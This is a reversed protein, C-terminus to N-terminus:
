VGYQWWISAQWVFILTFSAFRHQLQGGTNLFLSQEFISVTITYPLIYAETGFLIVSTHFHITHLFRSLIDRHSWGIMATRCCFWWIQHNYNLDQLAIEKYHQAVMCTSFILQPKHVNMDPSIMICLAVPVHLISNILKEFLRTINILPGRGLVCLCKKRKLLGIECLGRGIIQM